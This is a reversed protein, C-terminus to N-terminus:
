FHNQVYPRQKMKNCFYLTRLIFHKKVFNGHWWKSSWSQFGYNRQARFKGFQDFKISGHKENRQKRKDKGTKPRYVWLYFPRRVMFLYTFVSTPAFAPTLQVLAAFIHFILFYSFHFRFFQLQLFFSILSFHQFNLLVFIM